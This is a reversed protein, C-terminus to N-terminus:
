GQTVPLPARGRVLSRRRRCWGLAAQARRRESLRYWVRVGVMGERRTRVVVERKARGPPELAGSPLEPSFCWYKRDSLRTGKLIVKYKDGVAFHYSLQM